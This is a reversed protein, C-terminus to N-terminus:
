KRCSWWWCLSRQSIPLFCSSSERYFFCHPWSLMWFLFLSFLRLFLCHHPYSSCFNALNFSRLCWLVQSPYFQDFSGRLIWLFAWSSSYLCSSWSSESFDLWSFLCSPRFSGFPSSSRPSWRSPCLRLADPNTWLGEFSLVEFRFSSGQLQQSSRATCLSRCYKFQCSTFPPLTLSITM